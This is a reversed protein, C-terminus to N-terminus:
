LGAAEDNVLVWDDPLEVRLIEGVPSIFLVAKYKDLLRSELRYVRVSAHGITLRDNHATWTLGLDTMSQAPSNTTLGPLNFATLPLPIPLDLSKVLAAPDQLTAFSYTEEDRVGDSETRLRVKKESALSHIMVSNQHVNLRIDIEQWTQNTALKLNFGFQFRNTLPQDFTLNGDLNLRYGAPQGPNQVPPLDEGPDPVPALATGVTWRCYGQKKGHHLIDLASNDPATLIKRWVLETPVENGLPNGGGFESRWLLYNMTLWFLASLILAIRSTM